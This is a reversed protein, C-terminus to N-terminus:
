KGAQVHVFLKRADHVRHYRQRVPFVRVFILIVQGVWLLVERKILALHVHEVVAPAAHWQEGLDNDFM